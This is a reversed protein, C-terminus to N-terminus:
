PNGSKNNTVRCCLLKCGLVSEVPMLDCVRDDANPAEAVCPM